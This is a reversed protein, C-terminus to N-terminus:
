SPPNALPFRVKHDPYQDTRARSWRLWKAHGDYYLYNGGDFHRNYRIWGQDAYPAVGSQVLAAEGVWTDYDDQNISGWDTNEEANMAESNRESFMIINSDPLASIAADSAFGALM